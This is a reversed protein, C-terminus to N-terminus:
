STGRSRKLWQVGLIFLWIISTQVVFVALVFWPWEFDFHWSSMVWGVCIIGPLNVLFSVLALLGGNPGAHGMGSIALPTLSAGEIIAAYVLPKITM